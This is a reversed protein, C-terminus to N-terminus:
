SHIHSEIVYNILFYAAIAYSIFYKDILNAAIIHAVIIVIYNSSIVIKVPM